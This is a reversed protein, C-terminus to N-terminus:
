KVSHRATISYLTEYLMNGVAMNGVAGYQRSRDLSLRRQAQTIWETDVRDRVKRFTALRSGRICNGISILTKLGSLSNEQM